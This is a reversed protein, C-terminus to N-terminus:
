VSAHIAQDTVMLVDLSVEGSNWLLWIGGRFGVAESRCVRNFGLMSSIDEVRQGSIRTEVLVAISPRHSHLLDAFNRCFNSNRAGRCNWVLIRMSSPNTTSTPLFRGSFERRRTHTRNQLNQNPIPTTPASPNM